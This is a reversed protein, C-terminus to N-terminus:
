NNEALYEEETASEGNDKLIKEYDKLTLFMRNPEKSKVYNVFSKATYDNTRSLWNQFASDFTNVSGEMEPFDHVITFSEGNSLEIKTKNFKSVRNKMEKM